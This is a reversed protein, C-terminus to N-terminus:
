GQMQAMMKHLLATYQKRQSSVAAPTVHQYAAVSSDRLPHALPTDPLVRLRAPHAPDFLFDIYGRVFIHSWLLDEQKELLACYREPPFTPKAACLPGLVDTTFFLRPYDKIDKGAFLAIVRMAETTRELRLQLDEQGPDAMDFAPGNDGGDENLSFTRRASTANRILRRLADEDLGQKDCLDLVRKWLKGERSSLGIDGQDRNAQKNVNEHLANSYIADFYALFEKGSTADFKAVATRMAQTFTLTDLKGRLQSRRTYRADLMAEEDQALASADTNQLRHEIKQLFNKFEFVLLYLSQWERNHQLREEPPYQWIAHTEIERRLAAQRPTDKQYDPM